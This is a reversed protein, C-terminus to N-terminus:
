HKDQKRLVEVIIYPAPEPQEIGCLQAFSFASNIDSLLCYQNVQHEIALGNCALPSCRLSYSVLSDHYQVVDFGLRTFGSLKPESPLPPLDGIFFQEPEIWDPIGSSDFLVPIGRYAYLHYVTDKDVFKRIFEDSECDETAKVITIDETSWCGARNLLDNTDICFEPLSWCGSCSCIETIHDTQPSIGWDSPKHSNNLRFGLFVANQYAQSPAIAIM